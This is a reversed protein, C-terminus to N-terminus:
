NNKQLNLGAVTGIFLLNMPLGYYFQKFSLSFISQENDKLFRIKGFNAVGAMIKFLKWCMKSQKGSAHCSLSFKHTHMKGYLKMQLIFQELVRKGEWKLMVRTIALSAVLPWSFHFLQISLTEKTICSAKDFRM